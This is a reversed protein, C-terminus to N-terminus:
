GRKRWSERIDAWWYPMLQWAVAGDLPRIPLLNIIVLLVSYYGLFYAATGLIPTGRVPFIQALVMVPVALLLQALVGGWAITAHHKRHHPNDFRCLGHAFHLEISWVRYGLRRAVFAHGAEHLLIVSFYCLISTIADAPRHARQWYLYAATFLVAWHIRVEGGFIRIHKLTILYNV